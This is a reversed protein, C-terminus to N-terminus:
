ILIANPCLIENKMQLHLLQKQLKVYDDPTISSGDELDISSLKKIWAYITVESFSYEGNLDRVSQGPHYLGVLMKCYNNNYHKENNKNNKHNM